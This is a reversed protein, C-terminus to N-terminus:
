ANKHNLPVIETFRFLFNPKQIKSNLTLSKEYICDTASSLFEGSFFVQQNKELQSAADFIPSKPNLLTNDFMDSVANNWTSVFIDADLKVSLVGKGKSNSSLNAVRGTWNHVKLSSFLMCINEDRAAKFGGKQLDNKALRASKQAGM